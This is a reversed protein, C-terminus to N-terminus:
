EVPVGCTEEKVKRIVLKISDDYYKSKTSYNRFDIIEKDSRFDDYVDEIKIEYMLNQSYYNQNTTM